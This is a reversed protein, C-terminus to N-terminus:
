VRWQQEPYTLALQPYLRPSLFYLSLFHLSHFSLTFCVTAFILSEVNWPNRFYTVTKFNYHLALTNSQAVEGCHANCDWDNETERLNSTDKREKQEQSVEETNGDGACVCRTTRNDNDQTRKLYDTM